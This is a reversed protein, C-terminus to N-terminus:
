YVDELASVSSVAVVGDATRLLLEGGKGLGAVEGEAAGGPRRARVTRGRGWLAREMDPRLAAFGGAQWAAIRKSLRRLLPPLADEPRPARGLCTEVDATARGLAADREPHRRLNVGIGAVLALPAPADPAANAAQGGELLIGCIKADNVFVDNPWKCQAAIGLEELFDKVGLGCAFSLGGAEALPVTGKWVFSFTLDGSAASQWANGLRGKGKTQRRAAFVTGSPAAQAADEGRLRLKLEDNTSATEDAWEPELFAFAATTDNTTM